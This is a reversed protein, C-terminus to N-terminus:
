PKTVDAGGARGAKTRFRGAPLEFNLLKSMENTMGNGSLIIEFTRNMRDAVHQIMEQAEPSGDIAKGFSEWDGPCAVAHWRDRALEARADHKDDDAIREIAAITNGFDGIMDGGHKVM